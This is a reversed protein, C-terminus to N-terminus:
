SKMKLIERAARQAGLGDVMIKGYSGKPMGNKTIRELVEDIKKSTKNNVLGLNLAIGKRQWEKATILQHKVQCIIAFPINMSAFEYTTIGGACLGYRTNSIEKHMAKTKNVISLKGVYKQQITEMEESKKTAPGLIIKAKIQEIYPLLSRLVMLVINKEDYGGFTILLDYKPKSSRTKKGFQSNLIQYNPGLLCKIGYKNKTVKNEYGVFGDIVLDAPLHFRRLDSIAVVKVFKKLKQLDGSKVNYNDVILIDINKKKITETTKGIDSIMNSGKKLEYINAFGRELLLKRVGGYDEILFHIGHPRLETALNISRYVHGLGLQKGSARGGGTRFLINLKNHKM